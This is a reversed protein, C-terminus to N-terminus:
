ENLPLDMIHSGDESRALLEEDIHDFADFLDFETM